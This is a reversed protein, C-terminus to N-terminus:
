IARFYALGAPPHARLRRRSPASSCHPCAPARVPVSPPDHVTWTATLVNGLVCWLSARVGCVCVHSCGVPVYLAARSHVCVGHRAHTSDRPLLCGQVLVPPRAGSCGGLEAQALCPFLARTRQAPARVAEAPQARSKHRMPGRGASDPCRSMGPGPRPGQVGERGVGPVRPSRDEALSSPQGAPRSAVDVSPESVSVAAAWPGMACATGAQMRIGPRGRGPSWPKRKQRSAPPALLELFPGSLLGPSPGKLPQCSVSPRGCPRFVATHSGRGGGSRPVLQEADGRAAKNEQCDNRQIGGFHAHFM